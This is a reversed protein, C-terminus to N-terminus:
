TAAITPNVRSPASSLVKPGMVDLRASRGCPVHFMSCTVANSVLENAEAKSKSDPSFRHGELIPHSAAKINASMLQGHEIGSANQPCKAEKLM